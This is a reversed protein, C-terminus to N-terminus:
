KGVVNGQDNQVKQLGRKTEKYGSFRKDSIAKFEHNVQSIVGCEAGVDGISSFREGSKWDCQAM